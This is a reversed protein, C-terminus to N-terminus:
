KFGDMALVIGHWAVGGGPQRTVYLLAGGQGESGWGDSYIILSIDLDPDYMRDAPMGDLLPFQTPDNTFTLNSTDAPLRQEVLETAADAPSKSIGESRWYGIAFPDAMLGAIADVDRSRLADQVACGLAGIEDEAPCTLETSIPLPDISAYVGKLCPAPVGEPPASPIQSPMRVGVDPAFALSQLVSQVDPHDIEEPPYVSFSLAYDPNLKLLYFSSEVETGPNRVTLEIGPQGNVDVVETAILEDSSMEEGAPYM